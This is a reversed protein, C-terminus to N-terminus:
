YSSASDGSFIHTETGLIPPNFISVIRMDTKAHLVSADHKNMAYFTGAAVPHRKGEFEIEGEGAICYCSVLHNRYQLPSATGADVLTDAVAYGMGDVALLLRRSRGHQWDVDRATDMIQELSRFIM